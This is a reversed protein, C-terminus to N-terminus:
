FTNRRGHYFFKIEFGAEALFIKLQNIITEAIPHSLYYSIKFPNQESQPQPQLQPFKNAIALIQERHWGQALIDSWERDCKAQEPDFYMQTGLSTILADPKLLSKAQAIIQYSFFSRRTTYVIKTQYRQRHEELQKNLKQLAFDDGLLTDDLDTVFLFPKM